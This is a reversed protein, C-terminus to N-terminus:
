TAEEPTERPVWVHQDVRDDPAADVVQDPRGKTGALQWVNHTARDHEVDQVREEDCQGEDFLVVVRVRVRCLVALVAFLVLGARREEELLVDLAGDDHTGNGVYCLLGHLVLVGVPNMRDM